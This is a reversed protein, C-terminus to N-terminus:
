AAVELRGRSQFDHAQVRFLDRTTGDYQKWVNDAHQDRRMGCLSPVPGYNGWMNPGIVYVTARCRQRNWWWDILNAM